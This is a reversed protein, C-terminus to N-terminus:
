LEHVGVIIPEQELCKKTKATLYKKHIAVTTVREDFYNDNMILFQKFGKETGWSNEVKWRVPKQDIVHVGVFSMAHSSPIERLVYQTKRNMWKLGLTDYYNYNRMDLIWEKRNWMKNTPCTFWVPLNDKLQKSVAKKLDSMPVNIYQSAENASGFNREEQYKQYYKKKEYEISKLLVFDNVDITLYKEKFNLPTMHEIRVIEKDKTKYELAFEKTPEGLVKCLIEYVEALMQLKFKRLENLSTGKKRLGIIINADYKLKEQLISNLRNSAISEHSEPMYNAPLVGYKTVLNAFDSYWGGEESLFYYEQELYDYDLNKVAFLNEYANNFKELRDFFTLYVNSLNLDKIDINMNKAINGRILNTGAFCWCRGSQKQNQASGLDTEINFINQNELLTKRDFCVEDIGSRTIANEIIKNAPIQHYRESFVAIDKETIEKKM